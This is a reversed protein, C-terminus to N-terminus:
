ANDAEEILQRVWGPLPQRRDIEPKEVDDPRYQIRGLLEGPKGDKKVRRGSVYYGGPTKEDTWQFELTDAIFRKSERSEIVPGGTFRIVRRHYHSHRAIVPFETFSETSTESV